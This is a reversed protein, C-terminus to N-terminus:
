GNVEILIKKKTFIKHFGKKQNVKPKINEKELFSSALAKEQIRNVDELFMEFEDEVDKGNKEDEKLMEAYKILHNVANQSNVQDLTIESLESIINDYKKIKFEQSLNLSFNTGEGSVFLSM